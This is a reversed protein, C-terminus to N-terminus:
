FSAFNRGAEYAEQLATPHEKIAGKAEVRRYTLSETKFPLGLADLFYKVTLLPGEYLNKGKTAGVGLFFAKGDPRKLDPNLRVRNWLAQTRDILAKGQAPFSYFFISSAIVIRETEILLPYLDTMDDDLVCVGTKDCSGCEICGRINLERAYVRRVEVGADEAGRIFEDLLLDSNGNQRPSLYLALIDTM